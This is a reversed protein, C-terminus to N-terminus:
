LVSRMCLFCFIQVKIDTEIIDNKTFEDKFEKYVRTWFNMVKIM